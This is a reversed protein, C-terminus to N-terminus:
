PMCAKAWGVSASECIVPVRERGVLIILAFWSRFTLAVGLLFILHGLPCLIFTQVPTRKIWRLLGCCVNDPRKQM